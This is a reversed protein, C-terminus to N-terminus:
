NRELQCCKTEQKSTRKKLHLLYKIFDKCVNVHDKKKKLLIEKKESFNMYLESIFTCIIAQQM